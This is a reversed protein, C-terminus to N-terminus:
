NLSIIMRLKNFDMFYLIKVVGCVLLLSIYVNYNYISFVAQCKQLSFPENSSDKKM